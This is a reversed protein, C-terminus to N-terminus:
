LMSGQGIPVGVRIKDVCEICSFVDIPNRLTIQNSGGAARPREWGVVRQYYRRHFLDDRSIEKGCHVCQRTTM